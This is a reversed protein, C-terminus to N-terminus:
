MLDYWPTIYLLYFFTLFQITNVASYFLFKLTTSQIFAQVWEHLGPEELNPTTITLIMQLPAGLVLFVPIVMFLMMHAVMHMSFMAPMYLGIGFSMALALTVSGLLWWFTRQWPWAERLQKLRHLGYLYGITLFVGLTTFM